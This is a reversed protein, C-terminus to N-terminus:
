HCDPTVAHFHHVCHDDAGSKGPQPRQIAQATHTFLHRHQFGSGAHAPDPIVVTIGTRATIHFTIVIRVAKGGFQLLLPAPSLAIGRLRLNQFVDVMNSVAEVQALVDLEVGAHRLGPVILLRRAPSDGCFIPLCPGRLKQHHTDPLQRGCFCRTVRALRRKLTFDNM